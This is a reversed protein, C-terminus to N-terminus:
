EIAYGHLIMNSCSAENRGKKIDPRFSLFLEQGNADEFFGFFRFDPTWSNLTSFALDKPKPLGYTTSCCSHNKSSVLGALSAM